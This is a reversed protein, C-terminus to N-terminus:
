ENVVFTELLPGTAPATPSALAEANVGLLSAALGSDTIHFKPRRATGATLRRTWRANTKERTTQSRPLAWYMSKSTAEGTSPSLGRSVM